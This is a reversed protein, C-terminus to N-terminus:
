YEFTIIECTPCRFGRVNKRPPLIKKADNQNFNELFKEYWQRYKPNFISWSCYTASTLDKLIKRSVSGSKGPRHYLEFYGKEMEKKCKPCKSVFTVNKEPGIGMPTVQNVLKFIAKERNFGQNMLSKIMQDLKQQGSGYLNNYTRLLEDYFDGSKETLEETSLNILDNGIPIDQIREAKKEILKEEEALKYVAQDRILGQKILSSIKKELDQKARGYVRNYISLLEKYLVVAKESLKPILYIAQDRSLGQNIRAKIMQDLKQKGEGYFSNYTRLLGKYLVEAIEAKEDTSLPTKEEIKKLAYGCNGCYNEGESLESACEPCKL